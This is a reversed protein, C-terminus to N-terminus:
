PVAEPYTELFLVANDATLVRAFDEVALRTPFYSTSDRLAVYTGGSLEYFGELILSHKYVPDGIEIGIKMNRGAAILTEFLSEKVESLLGYHGFLGLQMKFDFATTM